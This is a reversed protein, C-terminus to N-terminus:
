KKCKFVNGVFNATQSKYNKKIFNIAYGMPVVASSNNNFISEYFSLEDNKDKLYYNMLVTQCGCQNVYYMLDCPSPNKTPQTPLTTNAPAVLQLMPQMNQPMTISGDDPNPIPTLGTVNDYNFTIWTNGGTQANVIGKLVTCDGTSCYNKYDTILSVDVLIVVKGMLQSMPTSANVPGIYLRPGLSKNIIDACNDYFTKRSTNQDTLYFRFHIFLPDGNNSVTSFANAVIYQMADNLYYSSDDAKISHGDTSNALLPIGSACCVEIDLFRCGNSMVVGLQKQTMKKGDFAANYAGKILYQSLNLGQSVVPVTGVGFGEITHVNGEPFPLLQNPKFQTYLYCFLSVSVVLVLLNEFPRESM